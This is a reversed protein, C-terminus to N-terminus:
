GVIIKRSMSKGVSEIRVFYIGPLLAGSPIQVSHNGSEFEVRDILNLVERGGVDEIFLRVSAKQPLRFRVAADARAPNPFPQYLTFADTLDPSVGLSQITYSRVESYESAHGGNNALVRWFYTGPKLKSISEVTDIQNFTSDLVINQFTADTALQLEYMMASPVLHWRFVAKQSTSVSDQAPVALTPTPTLSDNSGLRRIFMTIKDYPRNRQMSTDRPATVVTDAVSMGQIVRGYVSYKRDLYTPNAVCIFFQSTASNPDSSRAASLIGRRHSVASFEADVTQQEPDGFGWTSPDGDITNPDGGQIMFGPIVRHFATGDYFHIAVLSDWNRVSMPAIAPFMEVIIRGIVTDSRHVEIQYQPKGTFPGQAHLPHAFIVFAIAVLSMFRKQM